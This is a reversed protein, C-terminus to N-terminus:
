RRDVRYSRSFDRGVAAIRGALNSPEVDVSAAITMSKQRIDPSLKYCEIDRLCPAGFPRADVVRVFNRPSVIVIVVGRVTKDPRTVSRDRREVIRLTQIGPNGPDVVLTLNGSNAGDAFMGNAEHPAGLSPELCEM